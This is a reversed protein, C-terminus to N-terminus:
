FMFGAGGFCADHCSQDMVARHALCSSAGLGLGANFTTIMLGAQGLCGFCNSYCFWPSCTFASFQMKWTESLLSPDFSFTSSNTTPVFPTGLVNSM